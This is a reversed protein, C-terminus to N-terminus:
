FPVIFETIKTIRRLLQEVDEGIKEPDYCDRPHKSSTIWIHTAMLPLPKRGRRPVSIQYGDLWTLLQHFPIQCRFEDLIVSTELQYRDWWGKDDWSHRYLPVGLASAAEMAKRSKGAGTKGWYWQVDPPAWLGRTTTALREDELRDLTRGYLHFAHPNERLIESTSSTGEMVAAALNKLDTRKGAQMPDGFELYEDGEKTCYDYNAEWDAIARELHCTAWLGGHSKIGAITTKRSTELYGQWHQLGTTPCSELGCLLYSM